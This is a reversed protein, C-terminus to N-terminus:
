MTALMIILILISFFSLIKFQRNIEELENKIAKNEEKQKQVNLQMQAIKNEYYKKDIENELKLREM